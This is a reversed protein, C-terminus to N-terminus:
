PHHGPDRVGGRDTPSHRTRANFPFRRNSVPKPDSYGGYPPQAIHSLTRSRFSSRRWVTYTCCRITCCMQVIANGATNLTATCRPTIWLRPDPSFPDGYEDSGSERSHTVGDDVRPQRGSKLLHRHVAEPGQARGALPRGTQTGGEPGTMKDPECRKGGSRPNGAGLHRMSVPIVRGGSADREQMRVDPPRSPM